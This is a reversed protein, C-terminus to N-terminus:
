GEEEPPATELQGLIACGTCAVLGVPIGGIPEQPITSYTDGPWLLTHCTSCQAPGNPWMDRLTVPFIGTVIPCDEAHDADGSECGTAECYVCTDFDGNHPKVGGLLAQAVDLVRVAIKARLRDSM